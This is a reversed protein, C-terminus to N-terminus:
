FRIINGQSIGKCTKSLFLSIIKIKSSPHYVHTQREAEDTGLLGCSLVSRRKATNALIDILSM